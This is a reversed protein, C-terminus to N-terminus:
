YEWLLGGTNKSIPEGIIVMGRSKQDFFQMFPAYDPYEMRRQFPLMVLCLGHATLIELYNRPYLKEIDPNGPFYLIRVKKIDAHPLFRGCAMNALIDPSQQALEYFRQKLLKKSSPLFRFVPAYGPARALRNRCIANFFAQLIGREDIQLYRCKRDMHVFATGCGTPKGCRDCFRAYDPLLRACYMCKM